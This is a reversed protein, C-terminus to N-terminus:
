KILHSKNRIVEMVAKQLFENAMLIMDFDSPFPLPGNGLRKETEHTLARMDGNAILYGNSFVSNAIINESTIQQKTINDYFDLKGSLVAEKNQAVEKVDCGIRVYKPEKIDNGSSDKMVNGHNDLKYTWGDQITKTETWFKEKLHEPSVDIKKLNLVIAYDYVVGEIEKADYIVWKSNIDSVTIKLFEYEFDNPLYANSNNQMYLVVHTTGLEAAKNIQENVDRFDSYHKKIKMFEDYAQRASMKDNNALLKTGLAYYYECAKKEADILDKDYDHYEYGIASLIQQPLTKALAQRNKLTNYNQFIEEWIDPQGTKRLFDIRDLNQRNAQKYAQTLVFLEKANDPKKRLKAIAKKTAMDFNGKELYKKSSSCGGLILLAMFFLVVKTKM